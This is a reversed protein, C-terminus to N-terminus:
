YHDAFSQKKYTVLIETMTTDSKNQFCRNPHISITNYHTWALEDKMTHLTSHLSANNSAHVEVNKVKKLVTHAYSVYYQYHFM